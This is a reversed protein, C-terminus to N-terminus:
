LGQEFLLKYKFEYDEEQDYLRIEDKLREIQGELGSSDDNSRSFRISSDEQEKLHNNSNINLDFTELYDNRTNAMRSYKSRVGNNLESIESDGKEMDNFVSPISGEDVIRIEIDENFSPYIKGEITLNKKDDTLICKLEGDDNNIRDDEVHFLPDTNGIKLETEITLGSNWAAYGVGMLSLSSIMSLYIISM